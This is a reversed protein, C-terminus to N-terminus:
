KYTETIYFTQYSVRGAKYEYLRYSPQRGDWPLICAAVFEPVAAHWLLADRHLHGAFVSTVPFETLLMQWRSLSEPAYNVSMFPEHHFLLISKGPHAAMTATTWALVDDEPNNEPEISSIFLLLMENHEVAYNLEDVQKAYTAANTGVYDHNGALVYVPVALQRLADFGQQAISEEVNDCLVDGTLAVFDFRLESAQMAAVVDITSQVSPGCGWHPDTIQVFYVADPDQIQAEVTFVGALLVIGAILILKLYKM